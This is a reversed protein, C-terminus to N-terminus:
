KWKCRRENNDLRVGSDNSSNNATVNNLAIYGDSKVYLGDSNNGSFSNTGTISVFGQTNSTHNEINVGDSTDNEATINNLTINGDSRIILGDGNNGTFVNTGLVEITASSQQRYQPNAGKRRIELRLLM